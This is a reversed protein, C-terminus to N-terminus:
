VGTKYDKAVLRSRYKSNIEDQKNTDVWRVKIPERGTVDRCRQKSVKRYVQIKKFFEMEASRAQRVKVPDLKCDNVDDWAVEYNEQALDEHCQHEGEKAQSLRDMDVDRDDVNYLFLQMTDPKIHEDIASAIAEAVENQCYCHKM